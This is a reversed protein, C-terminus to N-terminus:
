REVIIDTSIRNFGSKYVKDGRGGRGGRRLDQERAERLERPGSAKRRVFNGAYGEAQEDLRGRSVRMNLACVCDYEIETESM